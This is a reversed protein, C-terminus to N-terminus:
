RRYGGASPLGRAGNRAVQRLRGDIKADLRKDGLFAEVPDGKGNPIIDGNVVIRLGGTGAYMEGGHVIAAQPKGVPGPVVGGDGYSNLAGYQAQSVATRLNAQSLMEKLLAIQASNDATSGGSAGTLEALQETYDKINRRAETLKDFDMAKGRKGAMRVPKSYRAAQRKWYGILATLALADDDIGATLEAAALAADYANGVTKAPPKKKGKKGKAFGPFGMRLLDRTESATFIDSGRPVAQLHPGRNGLMLWAGEATRMLERGQEGVLALEPGINHGGRARRASGGAGQFDEYVNRHVTTLTVEKDHLSNLQANVTKITSSAKDKADIDLSKGKLKDLYGQLQKLKAMPSDTSALIKLVQKQSGLKSAQKSISGLQRTVWADGELGIRTAVKQGAISKLQAVAKGVGTGKASDFFTRLQKTPLHSVMSQVQRTEEKTLDVLGHMGENLLAAQKVSLSLGNKFTIAAISGSELKDSYDLMGSLAEKGGFEDTISAGFGSAFQNGFQQGLAIPNGFARKLDAGIDVNQLGKDLTQVMTRLGPILDKSFEIGKTELTGSLRELDGSLNDTKKAATEAATGVETNAQQLNRAKKAGLDYLAALTRFGDTGALTKLTAARQARSMGGLAGQLEKALQIPNKMEGAQTQFELGLQKALAAQKETPAVLQLLATKMSTGADSNKIGAEALAELVTVTDNLSYGVQKAASGGQTLAMAFDSVDATTTNAATALMDAVQASEKGSLGFLNMANVTTSAAQALDLEGAAALNLAAPLAGGLIQKTKLGGKALETQAGAVESASFVSAKGLDLAQQSFKDMQAGSAGSVAQLSSMQDEFKMGAQVSKYLGYAVAAAGAKVAMGSRGGFASQMAGGTAQAQAATKKTAADVRSLSAVAQRTDASVLIQLTAAVSM